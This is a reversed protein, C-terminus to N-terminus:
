VLAVVWNRSLGIWLDLVVDSVRQAQLGNMAWFIRDGDFMLRRHRKIRWNSLSDIRFWGVLSRWFGGLWIWNSRALLVLEDVVWGDLTVTFTPVYQWYSSSRNSSRRRCWNSNGLWRTWTSGLIISCTNTKRRSGSLYIVDKSQRIRILPALQALQFSSAFQLKLPM